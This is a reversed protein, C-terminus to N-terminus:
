KRKMSRYDLKETTLGIVQTKHEELPAENSDGSMTPSEMPKSSALKMPPAAMSKAAKQKKHVM